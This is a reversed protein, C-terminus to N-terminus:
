GNEEGGKARLIFVLKKLNWSLANVLGFPPSQLRGVLKARLEALGPLAALEKIKESSLLQGNWFGFKIKPLETKKIFSELVKLPAPDEQYIWLAATPGTLASDSLQFNAEKAALQLLTNKVVEFEGGAQKVERRLETMQAVDLGQYDTLILSKAQKLKAVLNEVTFIKRQPVM